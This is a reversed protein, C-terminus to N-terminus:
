FSEKLRRDLNDMSFKEFINENQWKAIALFEEPKIVELNLDAALDYVQKMATEEDNSRSEIEWMYYDNTYKSVKVECSQYEYVWSEWFLIMGKRLGFVDFLKIADLFQGTKFVVEVEELKESEMNGMKLTIKEENDSKKIRLYMKDPNFESVVVGDAPELEVSLRKFTQEFKANKELFSTLKQYQSKDLVGRIEIEVM